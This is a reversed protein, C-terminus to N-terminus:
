TTKSAVVIKRMQHLSCIMKFLSLIFELHGLVFNLWPLWLLCSVIEHFWLYQSKILLCNTSRTSRNWILNMTLTINLSKWALLILIIRIRIWILLSSDCITVQAVLLCWGSVWVGEEVTSMQVEIIGATNCFIIVQSNLMLKVELHLVIILILSSCLYTSEVVILALLSLYWAVRSLFFLHTLLESHRVTFWHSLQLAFLSLDRLRDHLKHMDMLSHSSSLVSKTIYTSAVRVVIDTFLIRLDHHALIIEIFLCSWSVLIFKRSSSLLRCSLLVFDLCDVVFSLATWALHEPLEIRMSSSSWSTWVTVDNIVRFRWRDTRLCLWAVIVLRLAQVDWWDFVTLWLKHAVLLIWDSLSVRISHLVDVFSESLVLSALSFCIHAFSKELTFGPGLTWISEM